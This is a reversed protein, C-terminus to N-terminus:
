SIRLIPWLFSAALALLGLSGFLLGLRRGAKIAERARWLAGLSAALGGVAAIWGAPTRALTGLLVQLPGDDQARPGAWYPLQGSALVFGVLVCLSGFTVLGLLAWGWAQLRTADAMRIAVLESTRSVADALTGLARRTEADAIAAMATRQGEIIEQVQGAIMAPYKRYLTDYSELAILVMWLADNDRINLANKVRYLSQIEKDSPQRGLLEKFTSEVDVM